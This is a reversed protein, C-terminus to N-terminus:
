ASRVRRAADRAEREDLTPDVRMLAEWLELQRTRRGAFLRETGRLTSYQFIMRDRVIQETERKKQLIQEQLALLQQKYISTSASMPMKLTDLSYMAPGLQQPTSPPPPPQKESQRLLPETDRQHVETGLDVSRLPTTFPAPPTSIFVNHMGDPILDAQIAAHNGTFQTCADKMEIRKEDSIEARIISVHPRSAATVGEVGPRAKPPDDKQIPVVPIEPLGVVKHSLHQQSDERGVVIDNPSSQKPLSGEPAMESMTASNTTAQMPLKVSLQEAVAPVVINDDRVEHFSKSDLFAVQEENDSSGSLSRSESNQPTPDRQIPPVHGDVEDDSFDMSYDFTKEAITNASIPPTTTAIASDEEFADEEYVASESAISQEPKLSTFTPTGQSRQTDHTQNVVVHSQSLSEGQFSENYDDAGEETKPQTESPTSTATVGGPQEDTADSHFSIISDEVESNSEDQRSTPTASKTPSVHTANPLPIQGSRHSSEDQDDDQLVEVHKPGRKSTLDDSVSNQPLESDQAKSGTMGNATATNTNLETDGDSSGILSEDDDDLDLSIRRRAATNSGNSAGIGGSSYKSLFNKARDLASGSSPTPTKIDSTSKAPQKLSSGSSQRTTRDSDDGSSLGSMNSLSGSIDSADADSDFSSPYKITTHSAAPIAIEFDYPDDGM